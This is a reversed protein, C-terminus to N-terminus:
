FKTKQGKKLKKELVGSFHNLGVLVFIKFVEKVGLKLNRVMTPTPRPANPRALV